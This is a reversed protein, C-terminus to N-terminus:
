SQRAERRSMRVPGVPVWNEDPEYTTFDFDPETAARHCLKQVDQFILRWTQASLVFDIPHGAISSLVNELMKVRQKDIM